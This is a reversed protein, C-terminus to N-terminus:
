GTGFIASGVIPVMWHVSPYSSWAFMFLGAPVICSGVIAPPLRFEPESVGEIGTERELKDILRGRTHHWLPETMVAVFMGVMIGLFTMGSQWVNFGYNTGFILPFAGFFIFFIGLLIASFICLNLCMPELFLLQFPRLLSQGIARLVSKKRREMPALWRDDGTEIRIRRAKNRLLIPDSNALSPFRSLNLDTTSFLSAEALFVVALPVLDPRHKRYTEPVFLVIATWLAFSWILLVYYTWRWSVNYNIFGGILPGLSPGIFPSVSFTAMPFQLQKNSFLDGATGGSVALFASGTFGNLFRFVLIVAVNRAVAQPILWIVFATWSVLYIPRRGYFESLPGLLMPGFSLGLVFLSLGLVSVIRSNHFEAEMQAYTTTYASSACTRRALRVNTSM